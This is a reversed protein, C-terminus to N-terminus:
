ECGRSVYLSPKPPDGNGRKGNCTCCMPRLNSLKRIGGKSAPVIHDVTMLVENGKDDLAYLNLHARDKPEGVALKTKEVAFFKGRLGCEICTVGKFKFVKYRVSTTKVKMGFLVIDRPAGSVLDFVEEPSLTGYRVYQQLM